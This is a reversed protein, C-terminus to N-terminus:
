MLKSHHRLFIDGLFFCGFEHGAFLLYELWMYWLTHRRVVSGDLPGLGRSLYYLALVIVVAADTTKLTSSGQSVIKVLIYFVYIVLSQAM